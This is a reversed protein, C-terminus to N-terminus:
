KRETIAIIESLPVYTIHTNKDELLILDSENISRIIGAFEKNINKVYLFVHGNVLNEVIKRPIM